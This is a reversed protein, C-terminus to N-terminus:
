KGKPKVLLHEAILRQAEVLLSVRIDELGANTRPRKLAVTIYQGDGLPLHTTVLWLGKADDQQVLLSEANVNVM